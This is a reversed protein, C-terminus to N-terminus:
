IYMCMDCLIYMIKEEDKEAANKNDDDDKENNVFIKKEKSSFRKPMLKRRMINLEKSLKRVGAALVERMINTNAEQLENRLQILDM